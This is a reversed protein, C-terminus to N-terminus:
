VAVFARERDAEWSDGLLVVLLLVIHLVAASSECRWVGSM